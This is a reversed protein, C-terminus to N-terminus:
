TKLGPSIFICNYEIKGFIGRETMKEILLDSKLDVYEACEAKTQFKRQDDFTVFTCGDSLTCLFFVAEWM